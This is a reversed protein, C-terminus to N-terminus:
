AARNGVACAKRRGSPSATRFGALIERAVVNGWPDYRWRGIVGVQRDENLLAAVFVRFDRDELRAHHPGSTPLAAATITNGYGPEFQKAGNGRQALCRWHRAPAIKPDGQSSYASGACAGCRRRRYNRAGRRGHAIEENDIGRGPKSAVYREEFLHKCHSLHMGGRKFQTAAQEAAPARQRPRMQAQSDASAFDVGM